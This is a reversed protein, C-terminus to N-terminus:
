GGHLKQIQAKAKELPKKTGAPFVLVEYGETSAFNQAKKLDGMREQRIWYLAHPEWVVGMEPFFNQDRQVIKGTPRQGTQEMRGLIIIRKRSPM